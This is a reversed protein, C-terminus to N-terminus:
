CPLCNPISCLYGRGISESNTWIISGTDGSESFRSRYVAITWYVGLLIGLGFAGAFLEVPLNASTLHHGRIEERAVAAIAFVVFSLACLHFFQFPQSMQFPSAFWSPIQWPEVRNAGMYRQAIWYRTALAGWLFAIILVFGPIPFNQPFGRIGAIVWYAMVGLRVLLWVYAMRPSVPKPTEREMGSSTSESGRQDPKFKPVPAAGFIAWAGWLEVASFLLWAGAFIENFDRQFTACFDLSQSVHESGNYIATCKGNDVRANFSSVSNGAPSSAPLMDFIRSLQLGALLIAIPVIVRVTIPVSRIASDPRHKILRIMLFSGFAIVSIHMPLGVAEFAPLGLSALFGFSFVLSSM